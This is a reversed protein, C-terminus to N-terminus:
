PRGPGAPPASSAPGTTAGPLLLRGAGAPAREGARLGPARLLLFRWGAAEARAAFGAVAPDPHAEVDQPWPGRHELCAWRAAVPATGALPEDYARAVVACREIM